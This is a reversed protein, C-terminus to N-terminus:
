KAPLQGAFSFCREIWFGLREDDDIANEDVVIFGTMARGTFDMERTNPLLLLSDYNDAGVRAILESGLVGVCMNGNVMFALGGFMRKEILNTPYEQMMERIRQALGEDYAM